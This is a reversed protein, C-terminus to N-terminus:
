IKLDAFEFVRIGKAAAKEVKSSAKGGAKVLLITTSSGFNVVEGGANTVKAEQDKDRYGTFSIKQGTLAGQKSAKAKPLEYNVTVLDQTKEAFKKYSVLGNLLIDTTKDSWGSIQTIKGYLWTESATMLKDMSLGAAELSRLKRTGIGTGFEQSAVMFQVANLKRSFVRNFEDVIKSAMAPGVGSRVLARALNGHKWKTLYAEITPVIPFAKDITKDALFEVGIAKMFKAIRDVAMVRKTNADATKAVVFHVGLVKYDTDPVAPVKAPKVVDVIKPIVGGSRVLKIVAGKGIKRDTLWQANHATAFTVTVGGIKTPKIQVKPVIRGSASTQWIVDEVKAEVADAEFNVKFAVINKPKDNTQYDLVFKQPAIVLGDIDYESKDKRLALLKTMDDVDSVANFPLTTYWVGPMRKATEHAYLTKSLSEDYKGLVRFDVDALAPHPKMRNLLGSVMNRSNDFEKAYKREFVARKIVAETRYVGDPLRTPLRLNPILFSIDGGAVGDGRTIVKTPKGKWYVVQVSSGDLKEMIIYRPAKNNSLWKNLAEPYAKNLSPMPRDLDRETKKDAVRVGTRLLPAWSPDLKRIEDELADFEQDTMIPKKNYYYEVAKLYKAKRNNLTREQKISM